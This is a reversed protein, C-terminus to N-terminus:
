APAPLHCHPHPSRRFEVVHMGTPLVVEGSPATHHEVFARIEQQVQADHVLAPMGKLHVDTFWSSASARSAAVAAGARRTWSLHGEGAAEAARLANNLDNTFVYAALGYATDNALAIAEDLDDFTSVPM